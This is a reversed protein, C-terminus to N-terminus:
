HHTILLALGLAIRYWGFPTLGHREVLNILPRIVLISSIFSTIFGTFLIHGEGASLSPCMAIGEIIGAGCLAPIALLFSFEIATRRQMGVFLGSAITSGSRSVGPILAFTQCIGVSGAQKVSVGETQSCRKSLSFKEVLLFLIGGIILSLSVVTPTYLHAKIAHRFILGVLAAPISALCILSLLKRRDDSRRFLREFFVCLIALGSGLQIVVGFSKGPSDFGLLKEFLLLHTSSSIPLFETIGQVLGLLASQLSPSM